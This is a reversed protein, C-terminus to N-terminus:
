GILSLELIKDPAVGLSQALAPVVRGVTVSVTGAGDALRGVTDSLFVPAWFALAALDYGDLSGDRVATCAQGAATSKLAIGWVGATGAASGDANDFKGNADIYVPAGAVIAAAAVLTRQRVWPEQVLRIRAATVLAIDAM